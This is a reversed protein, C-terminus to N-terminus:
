HFWLEEADPAMAASTCTCKSATRNFAKCHQGCRLCTSCFSCPQYGEGFPAKIHQCACPMFATRPCCFCGVPVQGSARDRSRKQLLCLKALCWEPTHRCLEKGYDMEAGSDALDVLKQWLWVRAIHNNAGLPDQAVKDKLLPSLTELQMLETSTFLVRTRLEGELSWFRARQADGSDSPQLVAHGDVVHLPPDSELGGPESEVDEQVPGPDPAPDPDFAWAAGAGSQSTTSSSSSSSSSAAPAADAQSEEHQSSTVINSTEHLLVEPHLFSDLDGM